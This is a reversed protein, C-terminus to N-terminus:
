FDTEKKRRKRLMNRVFDACLHYQMVTLEVVQQATLSERVKEFINM